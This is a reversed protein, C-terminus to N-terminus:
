FSLTFLDEQGVYVLVAHALLDRGILCDIPQMQLPMAVVPNEWTINNPLVMRMFYRYCQVNASSPTSVPVTDMPQLGLMRPIDDRIATM